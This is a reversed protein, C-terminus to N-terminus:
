EVVQLLQCNANHFKPM